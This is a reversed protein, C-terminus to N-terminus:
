KGSIRKMNFEEKKYVGEVKGEIYANLSDKGNKKYVIRQPFDHLKNEFIYEKNKNSILTFCITESNNQNNVNTKYQLENNSLELTIQETFVTDNNQIMYSNGSFKNDNTKLWKEVFLSEKSRQEWEGLLWNLEDLNKIKQNKSFNCNCLLIVLLLNIFLIKKM